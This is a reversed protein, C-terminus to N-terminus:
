SLTQKREDKVESILKKDKLYILVANIRMVSSKCSKNVDFFKRYINKIHTEITKNSLDSKDAIENNSLGESMLELVELEKKTLAEIMLGGRIKEQAQQIENKPM